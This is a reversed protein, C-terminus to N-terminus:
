LIPPGSCRITLHAERSPIRGACIPPGSCHDRFLRRRPAPYSRPHVGPGGSPCARFCNLRLACYSPSPVCLWALSPRDSDETTVLLDTWVSERLSSTTRYSHIDLRHFTPPVLGSRERSSPFVVSLKGRQACDSLRSARLFPFSWSFVMRIGVVKITRGGPLPWGPIRM